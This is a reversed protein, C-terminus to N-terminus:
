LASPGAYKNLTIVVFLCRYVTLGDCPTLLATARGCTSTESYCQGERGAPAQRPSARQIHTRAKEGDFRVGGGGWVGVRLHQELAFRSREFHRYAFRLAFCEGVDLRRVVVDGARQQLLAFLPGPALVEEPCLVVKEDEGVLRPADYDASDVEARRVAHDLENLVFRM